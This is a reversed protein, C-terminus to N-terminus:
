DWDIEDHSVFETEDATEKLVELEDPLPEDTPVFKLVLAYLLDLDASPVSDTVLHCIMERTSM